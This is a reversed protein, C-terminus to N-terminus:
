RPTIVTVPVASLKRLRRPLKGFFLAHWWSDGEAAVFIGSCNLQRALEAAVEAPDGSRVHQKGPIGATALRQLAAELLTASRRTRFQDLERETMFGRMEWGNVPPQVYLLHIAGFASRGGQILHALLLDDNASGDLLALCAPESGASTPANDM